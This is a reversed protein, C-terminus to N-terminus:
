NSGSSSTSGRFKNHCNDGDPENTCGLSFILFEAFDDMEGKTKSDTTAILLYWAVAIIIYAIRWMPLNHQRSPFPKGRAWSTGPHGPGPAAAETLPAPAGNLLTLQSIHECFALKGEDSGFNM